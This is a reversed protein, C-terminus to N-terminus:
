IALINKYNYLKEISFNLDDLKIMQNITLILDKKYNEYSHTSFSLNEIMVGIEYYDNDETKSSKVLMSYCDRRIQSINLKMADNIENIIIKKINQM